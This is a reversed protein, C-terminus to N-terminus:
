ALSGLANGGVLEPDIGIATELGSAPGLDLGRQGIQDSRGVGQPLLGLGNRPEPRAIPVQGIGFVNEATLANVSCRWLCAQAAPPPAALADMDDKAQFIARKERRRDCKSIEIDVYM